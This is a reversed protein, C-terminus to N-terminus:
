EVKIKKFKNKIKNKINYIKWSKLNIKFKLGEFNVIFKKKFRLNIM